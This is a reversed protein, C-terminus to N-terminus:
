NDHDVVDESPIKYQHVNYIEEPNHVDMCMVMMCQFMM